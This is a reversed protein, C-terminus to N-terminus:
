FHLPRAIPPCPCHPFAPSSGYALVPGFHTAARLKESFSASMTNKAAIGFDLRREAKETPEGIKRRDTIGGL